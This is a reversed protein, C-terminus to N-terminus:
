EGDLNIGYGISGRPVELRYEYTEMWDGYKPWLICTGCTLEMPGEWFKQTTLTAGSERGTEVVKTEAAPISRLEFVGPETEQYFSYQLESEIQGAIVFLNGGFEGSIASNDNLLRLEVTSESVLESEANHGVLTAAILVMLIAVGTVLVMVLAPIVNFWGDSRDFAHRCYVYIALGIILLVPIM